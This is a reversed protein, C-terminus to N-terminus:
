SWESLIFINKDIKTKNEDPHMLVYGFNAHENFYEKIMVSIRWGLSESTLANEKNIQPCGYIEALGDVFDYLGWEQSLGMYLSKRLENEFNKQFNFDYPIKSTEIRLINKDNQM